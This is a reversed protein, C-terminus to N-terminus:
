DKMPLNDMFVLANCGLKDGNAPKNMTCCKSFDEFIGCHIADSNINVAALQRDKATLQTVEATGRGSM